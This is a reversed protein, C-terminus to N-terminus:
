SAIEQAAGDAPAEERVLQDDRYLCLQEPGIRLPLVRGPAIAPADGASPETVLRVKM